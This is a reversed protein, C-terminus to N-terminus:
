AGTVSRNRLPHSRAHSSLSTLLSSWLLILELLHLRYGCRSTAGLAATLPLALSRRGTPSALVQLIYNKKLMIGMHRPINGLANDVKQWASTEEAM